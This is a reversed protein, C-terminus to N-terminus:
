VVSRLELDYEVISTAKNYLIQKTDYRGDDVYSIKWLDATYSETIDHYGVTDYFDKHVDYPVVGIHQNSDSDTFVILLYERLTIISRVFKTDDHPILHKWYTLRTGDLNTRMIRYNTAADLNTRILFHGEHYTPWYIHGPVRETFQKVRPLEGPRLNSIKDIKIYYVDTSDLIFKRKHDRYQHVDLFLYLGDSSTYYKIPLKSELLLTNIGTNRNFCKVRYPKIGKEKFCSIFLQHHM